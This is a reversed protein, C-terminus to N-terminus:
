KKSEEEKLEFYTFTIRTAVMFHDSYYEGDRIKDQLIEFDSVKFEKSVFCFDIARTDKEGETINECNEGWGNFTCGFETNEAVAQCDLMTETAIEYWRDTVRGNMDGCVISPFSSDKVKNMVLKIGENRALEDQSDLHVNYVDFYKGSENHKLLATVCIRHCIAEWGISVKHPTESLWFIGEKILTFKEKDYCIALGEPNQVTDRDYYIINYKEGIGQALDLYQNENVEQM